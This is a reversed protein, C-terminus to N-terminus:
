SCYGCHAFYGQADSPSLAALAEGLARQLADTTRAAAKRLSSKLKSWAFEIPNLDPTYPPLYGLRAGVAEIAERGGAAKPTSWNDSVAV